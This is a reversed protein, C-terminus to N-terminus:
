WPHRCGSGTLGGTAIEVRNRGGAKAVALAAGAAGALEDATQGHRPAAAVGISATVPIKWTTATREILSRIHEARRLADEDGCAPLLIAFEDDGTRALVDSDRMQTRLVGAASSLVQDGAVFGELENIKGLRDLDVTLLAVPRGSRQCVALEHVLAEEFGRANLLGTLEDARQREEVERLLRSVTARLPVAMLMAAMCGAALYGVRLLGAESGQVLVPIAYGAVAVGTQLWAVSRPLVLGGLLTACVLLSAAGEEASANLYGPACGVATVLWPVAQIGWPPVGGPIWLVAVGAVTVAVAVGALGLAPGSFHGTTADMAAGLLSLGGAVVM